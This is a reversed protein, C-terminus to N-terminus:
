EKRQPCQTCRGDNDNHCHGPHCHKRGCGGCHGTRAHWGADTANNAFDLYDLLDDDPM